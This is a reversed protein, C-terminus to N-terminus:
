FNRYKKTNEFIYNFIMEDLKSFILGRRLMMEEAMKFAKKLQFVDMKQPGGNTFDPMFNRPFGAGYVNSAVGIVTGTNLMTNIGTKSHDGMIMGLFQLDTRDFKESAYNWIRVKDFTNKLNSNNTDAGLNCWEGLYSHGLFGDHGKNSYAQFISDCVEGGVKCNNGISVNGHIKAGMKITSNKGLYIPGKLIAGDQIEADNDIVIEGVSANLICVGLRVNKGLVVNESSIATVHKPLNNTQYDRCKLSFDNILEDKLFSIIDWTNSIFKFKNNYHISEFSSVMKNIDSWSVPGSVFAILEENQILKQGKRLTEIENALQLDPIVSSNIFVNIKEQKSSFKESLYDPVLFTTERKLFHEWKEKLSLMGIRISGVPRTYVIPFLADRSVKDFLVYNM